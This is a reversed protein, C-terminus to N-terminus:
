ATTRGRTLASAMMARSRTGPHSFHYPRKSILAGQPAQAFTPLSTRLRDLELRALSHLHVVLL